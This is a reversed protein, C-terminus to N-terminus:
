AAVADGATALLRRMLEATEASSAVEAAVDAAVAQTSAESVGLVQDLSADDSVLDGLSPTAAQGSTGAFYVDETMVSSGDARM